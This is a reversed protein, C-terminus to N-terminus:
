GSPQQTRNRQHRATGLMKVIGLGVPDTVAVFVIPITRTAKSVALTAQSGAAFLIDPKLAVLEAALEPLRDLQSEAFRREVALNHGARYGLEELRSLFAASYAASSTAAGGSLYGLRHIRQQTGARSPTVLPAAGILVARRSIM